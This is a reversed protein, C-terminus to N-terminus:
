NVKRLSLECHHPGVSNFRPKVLLVEFTSADIVSGDARLKINSIRDQEDVSIDVPLYLTWDSIIVEAGAKLEKGTTPMIRCEQDTYSDPWTEVPNGYDDAVGQSLSGIDCTHILLADYSM